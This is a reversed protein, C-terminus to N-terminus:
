KKGLKKAKKEIKKGNKKGIVDRYFTKRPFEAVKKEFSIGFNAPRLKYFEDKKEFLVKEM